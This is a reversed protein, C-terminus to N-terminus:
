KRERAERAARKFLRHVLQERAGPLPTPLPKEDAQMGQCESDVSGYDACDRCGSVLVARPVWAPQPPEREHISHQDSQQHHHSDEARSGAQCSCLAKGSGHAVCRTGHERTHRNFRRARREDGLDAGADGVFRPLIANGIQWGAGVLDGERQGAEGSDHAFAELQRATADHGNTRSIRTPLRSSDM